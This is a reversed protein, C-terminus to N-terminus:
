KSAGWAEARQRLPVAKEISLEPLQGDLPLGPIRQARSLPSPCAPPCRSLQSTPPTVSVGAGLPAHKGHRHSAQTRRESVGRTEPLTLVSGM